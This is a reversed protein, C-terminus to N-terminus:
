FLGPFALSLADIGTAAAACPGNKEYINKEQSVFVRRADNRVLAADPLVKPGSLVM